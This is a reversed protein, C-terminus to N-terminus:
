ISVLLSNSSSKLVVAMMSIVAFYATLVVTFETFVRVFCLSSAFIFLFWGEGIREGQTLYGM